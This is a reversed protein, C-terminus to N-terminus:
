CWFLVGEARNALFEYLIIIGFGKDRYVYSRFLYFSLGGLGTTGEGWYYITCCICIVAIQPTIDDSYHSIILDPVFCLLYDLHILIHNFQFQLLERKWQPNWTKIRVGGFYYGNISRSRLCSSIKAWSIGEEEKQWRSTIFLKSSSWSKAM